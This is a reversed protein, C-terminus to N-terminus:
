VVIICNMDNVCHPLFCKSIILGPMYNLSTHSFIILPYTFMVASLMVHVHARSYRRQWTTLHHPPSSITLPKVGKQVSPLQLLNSPSYFKREKEMNDNLGWYFGIWGGVRVRAVHVDRNRTSSSSWLIDKKKSFSIWWVSKWLSM